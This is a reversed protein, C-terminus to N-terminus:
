VKSSTVSFECQFFETRTVTLSLEEVHLKLIVTEPAVSSLINAQLLFVFCFLVNFTVNLPAHMGGLIRVKGTEAEKILWSEFRTHVIKRVDAFESTM